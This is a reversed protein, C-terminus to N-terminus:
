LSNDIKYKQVFEKFKDFTKLAENCAKMLPSKRPYKCGYLKLVHGHLHPKIGMEKMYEIIQYGENSKMKSMRERTRPFGLGKGIYEGTIYDLTGDIMMDAVEGM